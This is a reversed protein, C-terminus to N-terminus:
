KAGGRRQNARFERGKVLYLAVVAAILLATGALLARAMWYTWPKSAQLEDYTPPLPKQASAPGAIAWSTLVVLSTTVLRALSRAIRGPLMTAITTARALAAFAASVHLRV